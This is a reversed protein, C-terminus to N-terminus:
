HFLVPDATPQLLTQLRVTLSGLQGHMTRIVHATGVVPSPTAGDHEDDLTVTGSDTLTGSMSFTCPTVCGRSSHQVITISEPQSASAPAVTGTVIIGITLACGAITAAVLRIRFRRM